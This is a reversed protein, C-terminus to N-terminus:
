SGRGPRDPGIRLRGANDVAGQELPRQGLGLVGLQARKERLGQRSVSGERTAWALALYSLRAYWALKSAALLMAAPILLWGLWPCIAILDDLALLSGGLFLAAALTLGHLDRGGEGQRHKLVVTAALLLALEYINLLLLVLTIGGTKGIQPDIEESLKLVGYSLVAASIVYLPNARICERLLWRLLGYHCIYASHSLTMTKTNM